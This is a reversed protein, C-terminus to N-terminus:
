RGNCTVETETSVAIVVVEIGMSDFETITKRFRSDRAGHGERRFARGRASSANHAARMRPEHSVGAAFHGHVTAGDHRWQWRVVTTQCAMRDPRVGRCDSIAVVYGRRAFVRAREVWDAANNNYPTLVLIAPYRGEVDPRVVDVSLKVGDRM